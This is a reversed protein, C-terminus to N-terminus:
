QLHRILRKQSSLGHLGTPLQCVLSVSPTGTLLPVPFGLGWFVGPGVVCLPYPSFVVAIAADTHRSCLSWASSSDRFSVPAGGPFPVEGLPPFYLGLGATWSWRMPSALASESLPLGPEKSRPGQSGM